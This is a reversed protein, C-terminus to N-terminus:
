NVIHRRAPKKMMYWLLVLVQMVASVAFILYISYLPVLIYVSTAVAWVLASVSLFQFLISWWLACFVVCIICSIPIALVFCSWAYSFGPVAIRLVTYTVTATLWALGVSLLMIIIRKKIIDSALPPPLPANESILDNVTVNYIEALLSLVFIDPVGSGREWKSISKDSYKIREALEAQTM